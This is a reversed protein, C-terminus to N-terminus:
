KGNEDRIMNSLRTHYTDKSTCNTRRHQGIVGGFYKDSNENTSLWQVIVEESSLKGNGGDSDWRVNLDSNRKTHVVDEKKNSGKKSLNDRQKRNRLVTNYCTKSCVPLVIKTKNVKERGIEDVVEMQDERLEDKTSDYKLLEINKKGLMKAYCCFHFTTSAALGDKNRTSCTPNFCKMLKTDVVFIGHRIKDSPVPFVTADPMKLLSSALFKNRVKRTGLKWNKVLCERKTGAGFKCSEPRLDAWPYCSFPFVPLPACSTKHVYAFSKDKIEFDIIPSVEANPEIRIDVFNKSSPPLNPNVTLISTNGLNTNTTENGGTPDHTPINSSNTTTSQHHGNFREATNNANM